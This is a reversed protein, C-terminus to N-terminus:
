GEWGPHQSTVVLIIINKPDFFDPDGWFEENAENKCGPQTKAGLDLSRGGGPFPEDM